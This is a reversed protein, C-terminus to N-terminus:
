DPRKYHWPGGDEPGTYDNTVDLITVTGFFDSFRAWAHGGKEEVTNRDISASGILFGEDILREILVGALLAFIRCDGIQMKIFNELPMENDSARIFGEFTEMYRSGDTKITEKTICFVHNLFINQEVENLSGKLGARELMTRYLRSVEPSRGDVTIALRPGSSVYVGGSIRTNHEILHRGNLKGGVLRPEVRQRAIIEKNWSVKTM